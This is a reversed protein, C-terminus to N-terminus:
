TNGEVPVRIDFSRGSDRLVPEGGCVKIMARLQEWEGPPFGKEEEWEPMYRFLLTGQDLFLQLYLDKLDGEGQAFPKLWVATKELIECTQGAVNKPLHDVEGGIELTWRWEPYRQNLLTLGLALSPNKVRSGQRELELRDVLGQLYPLIREPKNLSSFGILVQLHNMWDHRQRHLLELQECANEEQFHRELQRFWCGMWWLTVTILVLGLALGVPWGWPQVSLLLIGVGLPTVWKLWFGWGYPVFGEGM